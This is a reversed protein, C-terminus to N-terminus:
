FGSFGSSSACVVFKRSKKGRTHTSASHGRFARGRRQKGNRLEFRVIRIRFRIRVDRKRLQYAAKAQGARSEEACYM